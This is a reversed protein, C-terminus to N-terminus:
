GSGLRRASAPQIKTKAVESTRTIRNPRPVSSRPTSTNMIQDQCVRRHGNM